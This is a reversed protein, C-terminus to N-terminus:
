GYNTEGYVVNICHRVRDMNKFIRVFSVAYTFPTKQPNVNQNTIQRPLQLTTHFIMKHQVANYRCGVTDFWIICTPHIAEPSQLNHIHHNRDSYQFMVDNVLDYCKKTILVFIKVYHCLSKINVFKWATRTFKLLIWRSDRKSVHILLYNGACHHTIFNSIWEKAEVTAGNFNLFPYIIEDRM